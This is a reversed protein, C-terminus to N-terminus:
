GAVFLIRMMMMMVLVVITDAVLSHHLFFSSILNHQQQQQQQPGKTKYEHTTRTPCDDFDFSTAEIVKKKKEENL